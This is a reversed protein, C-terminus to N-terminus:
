KRDGQCEQWRPCTVLHDNVMGVAQMFAYCITPGVFGFGLKKLAKSMTVAEPTVAPVESDDHRRNVIPAGGVFSWVLRAPDDIASWVRANRITALVKARNRVIGPDAMLREVDADGFEAIRVPDFGAFARRYGERRNLVTSWSLGAQAGELVLFEFLYRPDRNPVGWELDHYAVM